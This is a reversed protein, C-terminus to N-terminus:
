RSTYHSMEECSTLVTGEQEGSVKDSKCGNKVRLEAGCGIMIHLTLVHCFLDANGNALKHVFIDPNTFVETKCLYEAHDMFSM